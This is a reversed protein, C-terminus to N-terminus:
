STNKKDFDIVFIMKGDKSACFEKVDNCELRIKKSSAELDVVKLDEASDEGLSM